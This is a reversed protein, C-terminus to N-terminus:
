GEPSQFDQRQYLREQEIIRNFTRRLLKKHSKHNTRLLLHYRGAIGAELIANHNFNNSYTWAFTNPKRIKLKEIHTLSKERQKGSADYQQRIHQFGETDGSYDALSISLFRDKGPLYFTRIVESYAHGPSIFSSGADEFSQFPRLEKPLVTALLSDPLPTSDAHMGTSILDDMGHKDHGQSDTNNESGCASCGIIVIVFISLFTFIRM